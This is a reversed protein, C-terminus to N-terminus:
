HQVGWAQSAILQSSEDQIEFYRCCHGFCSWRQMPCHLAHAWSIAVKVVCSGLGPRGMVDALAEKKEAEALGCLFSWM